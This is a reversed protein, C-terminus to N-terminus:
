YRVANETTTNECMRLFLTGLAVFSGDDSSLVSDDNMARQSESSYTSRMQKEIYKYSCM